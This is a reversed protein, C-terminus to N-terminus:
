SVIVLYETDPKFEKRSVTVNPTTINRVYINNKHDDEVFRRGYRWYETENWERFTITVNYNEPLNIYDHLQLSIFPNPKIITEETVTSEGQFVVYM